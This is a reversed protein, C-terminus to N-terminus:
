NSYHVECLISKGSPSLRVVKLGDVLIKGDVIEATKLLQARSQPMLICKWGRPDDTEQLCWRVDESIIDPVYARGYVFPPSGVTMEVTLVVQGGQFSTLIDNEAPPTDNVENYQELWTTM